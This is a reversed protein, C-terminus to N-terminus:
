ESVKEIFEREQDGRNKFKGGKKRTKEGKSNQRSVM